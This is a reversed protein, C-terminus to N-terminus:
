LLSLYIFKQTEIASQSSKRLKRGGNSSLSTHFRNRKSKTLGIVLQTRVEILKLKLTPM